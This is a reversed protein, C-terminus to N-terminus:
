LTLEKWAYMDVYICLISTFCFRSNYIWAGVEKNQREEEIKDKIKSLSEKTFLKFPNHPNTKGATAQDFSPPNAM